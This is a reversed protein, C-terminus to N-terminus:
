RQRLNGKPKYKQQEAMERELWWGSGQATLETATKQAKRVSGEATILRRNYETMDRAAHQALENQARGRKVVQNNETAKALKEEINEKKKAAEVEEGKLEDLKAMAKEVADNTGQPRTLLEDVNFVRRNSFVDRKALLFEFISMKGDCDLDVERLKARLAIVTYPEGIREWVRHAEHEGCAHGHNGQKSIINFIQCWQYIDEKIDESIAETEVWFANLFWVAQQTFTKEEILDHLQTQHEEDLTEDEAAM